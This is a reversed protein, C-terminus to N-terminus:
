LRIKRRIFYIVPVAILGGASLIVTFANGHIWQGSLAGAAAMIVLIISCRYRKIFPFVEGVLYEAASAQIAISYVAFVTFVILFLSDIRQFSFPQTLQAAWVIPFDTIKMIGGCVLVGSILVAATIVAKGIFYGIATRPINDKVFGLMVTFGALGGSLTFGKSLEHFFGTSEASKINELDSHIIASVAVVGLCVAGLAAAIVASRAMAKIGSSAIYLCVVAILATTIIGGWKGVEEFPIFVLNGAKMLMSFLMGGWLIIGGLLIIKAIKGCDSLTGRKKYMCILPVSIILQLVSGIGFGAATAASIGGCLCFIAFIDNILMLSCLQFTTIKNSM